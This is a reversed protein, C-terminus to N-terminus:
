NLPNQEVASKVSPTRPQFPAAGGETQHSAKKGSDRCSSLIYHVQEEQHERYGRTHEQETLM